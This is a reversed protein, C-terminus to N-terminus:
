PRLNRASWYSFIGIMLLWSCLVVVLSFSNNIRSSITDPQFQYTDLVGWNSADVRAKQWSAEDKNRNIDDQYSLQEVHARNLGQVFAYRVQEAERQFRHYHTLDTGALTRSVVSIALAPSFWAFSSIAQEQTAETSMRIEAHKNLVDTLKKEGEIAVLGRYNIPLDEVREVKYKKLMDARLKQFAPDNANHGDGLKRIDALM